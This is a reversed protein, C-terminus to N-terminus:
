HLADADPAGGLTDDIWIKPRPVARSNDAADGRRSFTKLRPRSGASFLLAPRVGDQPNIPMAEGTLEREGVPNPLDVPPSGSRESAPTFRASSPRITVHLCERLTDIAKQRVLAPALKM